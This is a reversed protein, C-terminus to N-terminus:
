KVFDAINVEFGDAYKVSLTEVYSEVEAAYKSSAALYRASYSTSGDSSYSVTRDADEALRMIIHYGYDSEVVGSVEGPKLSKVADEFESVMTGETFVYGDPYASKGTDECYEEKLEAFRKALEDPDKIAALEDAIKEAEMKKEAIEEDTLSEGTSPDITMLLIHNASLYGNDELYKVAEADSIRSGNEGYEAVFGADYLRDIRSIRDYLARPLYTEALKENFQEETGNEGCAAAVDSKHGEAIAQEDAASLTIDHKEAYGEIGYLQCLMRGANDVALQAYTVDGGEEYPDSWDYQIGYYSSMQTFYSNIQNAQMYLWYFYEEWTVDHGDVTAVIESPERTEYLAAFDVSKTEVAPTAEAPDAAEDTGASDETPTATPAATEEPAAADGAATSAASQSCGTFVAFALCLAILLALFKKM